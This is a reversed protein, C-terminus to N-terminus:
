LLAGFVKKFEGHSYLEKRSETWDSLKKKGQAEIVFDALDQSVIFVASLPSIRTHNLKMPFGNGDAREHHQIIITDVDPPCLPWKRVIEASTVPHKRFAALDESDDKPPRQMLQILEQQNKRQSADLSIDHLMAAFVLKQSTLESVWKLKTSISTAILSILTSRDAYFHDESNKWESLVEDFQPNRSLLNLVMAINKNTLNQIEPTLGMQDRAQELFKLSARALGTKEASGSAVPEELIKSFRDQFDSIFKQFHKRELYLHTLKRTRYKQIEETDFVHNEHTARVFHDEGIKIYMPSLVTGISSILNLSVAVFSIQDIVEDTQKKLSESLIKQFSPLEIPKPLHKLNKGDKFEPHMELSDSSHVVFTKQSTKRFHTYVDGGNGNPMNYDCVILDINPHADIISRAENGSNAKLIETQGLGFIDEVYFTLIEIIDDYDDVLLLKYSM